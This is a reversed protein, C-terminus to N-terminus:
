VALPHADTWARELVQLLLDAAPRRRGRVEPGRRLVPSRDRRAGARHSRRRPRRAPVRHDALGVRVEAEDQLGHDAALHILEHGLLTNGSVDNALDYHLGECAATEEVHRMMGRM